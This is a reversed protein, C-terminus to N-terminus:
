CLLLGVSTKKKARVFGIWDYPNALGRRSSPSPTFVVSFLILQCRQDSQMQGTETCAVQYNSHQEDVKTEISQALFLVTAARKEGKEKDYM